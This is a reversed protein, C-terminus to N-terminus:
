QEIEGYIGKSINETCRIDERIDWNPRLKNFVTTTFPKKLAKPDELTLDTQLTDHDIRQIREVMHLQDSHVHGDDDLWNEDRMGLTDIVLTDGEWHGISNGEWTLELPKPHERGDMYVQRVMADTEYLLVIKKPLQIIEFPFFPRTGMVLEAPNYPVCHSYRPNLELRASHANTGPTPNWNYDYQAQAWPTLFWPPSANGRPAPKYWKPLSAKEGPDVPAMWVGSLDPKGEATRPVPVASSSNSSASKPAAQALAATGFVVTVAMISFVPVMLCKRM